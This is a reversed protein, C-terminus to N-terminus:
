LAETATARGYKKSGVAKGLDVGVRRLECSSIPACRAVVAVERGGRADEASVSTSLTANM